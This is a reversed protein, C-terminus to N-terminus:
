EFAAYFDVEDQMIQALDDGFNLSWLYDSPFNDRVKSRCSSARGRQTAVASAALKMIVKQARQHRM